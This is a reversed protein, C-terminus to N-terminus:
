ATEKRAALMLERMRARMGQHEPHRWMRNADHAWPLNEKPVDVLIRPTLGTFVIDCTHDFFTGGEFPIDDRGKWHALYLDFARRPADRHFAAGFGVLAHDTYFGHRFEQPMNCVVLSDPWWTSDEIEDTETARVWTDVIRQPDSVICDDDQVYILDHTAWEIAYYRGYVALDTRNSVFPQFDGEVIEEWLFLGSGNLWAIKEWEAPLSEMVPLLSVDGRTVIIASVNM